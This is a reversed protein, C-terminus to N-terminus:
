FIEKEEITFLDPNSFAGKETSEEMEEIFEDRCQEAKERSSHVSSGVFVRGEEWGTLLYIREATREKKTGM